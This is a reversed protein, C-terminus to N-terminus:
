LQKTLEERTVTQGPRGLLLMLARFPQDPLNSKFGARRIEGSRTDVEVDGFRVLPAPLSM